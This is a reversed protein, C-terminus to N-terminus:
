LEVEEKEEKEWEKRKREEEDISRKFAEWNLVETVLDIVPIKLESPEIQRIKERYEYWISLWWRIADWIYRKEIDDERNYEREIAEISHAQYFGHIEEAFDYIQFKHYARLEDPNEHPCAAIHDRLEKAYRRASDIIEAMEDSESVLLGSLFHEKVKSPVHRTFLRADSLGPNLLIDRGLPAGALLFAIQRSTLMGQFYAEFVEEREPPIKQLIKYVDRIASHKLKGEAIMKLFRIRLKDDKIISTDRFASHSFELSTTGVMTPPLKQRFRRAEICHDIFAHSKGLKEALKRTSLKTTQYLYFIYADKDQATYNSREENIIFSQLAADEETKIDERVDVPVEKLDILKCARYRREGDVLQYKKGKGLPRVILPQKLGVAKINDALERLKEEDFHKRPQNPNPLIDQLKMRM